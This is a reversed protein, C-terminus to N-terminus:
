RRPWLCAAILGAFGSSTHIGIKSQPVIVASTIWKNEKTM